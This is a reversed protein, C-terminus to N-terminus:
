NSLCLSQLFPLLFAASKSLSLNSALKSTSSLNLGIPRLRPDRAQAALVRAERTQWPHEPTLLTPWRPATSAEARQRELAGRGARARGAATRTRLDPGAGRSRDAPPVAVALVKVWSGGQDWAGLRVEPRVRCVHKIAKNTERRPPPSLRAKPSPKTWNPM